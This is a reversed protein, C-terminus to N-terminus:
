IAYDNDAPTPEFFPSFGDAQTEGRRNRAPVSILFTASHLSQTLPTQDRHTESFDKNGHIVARKRGMCRTDPDLERLGQTSGNTKNM